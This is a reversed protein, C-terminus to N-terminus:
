LKEPLTIQGVFLDLGNCANMIKGHMYNVKGRNHVVNYM